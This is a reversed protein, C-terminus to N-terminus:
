RRPTPATRFGGEDILAGIEDVPVPHVRIDESEEPSAPGAIV